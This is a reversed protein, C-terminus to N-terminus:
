TIAYYGLVAIVINAITRLGDLKDWFLKVKEKFSADPIEKQVAKWVEHWQPIPAVDLVAFLLKGWWTNDNITKRLIKKAVNIVKAM